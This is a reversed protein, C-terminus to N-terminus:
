LIHFNPSFLASWATLLAVSLLNSIKHLKLVFTLFHQILYFLKGKYNWNLEKSIFTICEIADLHWLDKINRQCKIPM